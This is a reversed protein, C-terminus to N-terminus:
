KMRKRNRQLAVRYFTDFDPSITALVVLPVLEEEPTFKAVAAGAERVQVGFRAEIIEPVASEAIERRGEERGRSWAEHVEREVIKLVARSAGKLM